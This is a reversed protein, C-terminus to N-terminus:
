EGLLFAKGSATAIPTFVSIPGDQSRKIAVFPGIESARVSSNHGSGHGDSMRWKRPKANPPEIAFCIALIGGATGDVVTAGDFSLLSKLNADINGDSFRVHDSVFGKTMGNDVLPCGVTDLPTDFPVLVFIAGHKSAENTQRAHMGAIASDVVDQTIGDPM